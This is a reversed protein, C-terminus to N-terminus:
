LVSFTVANSLAFFYGNGTLVVAQFTAFPGAPVNPTVLGLQLEGAFTNFQLDFFGLPNLGNGIVVLGTPIGM